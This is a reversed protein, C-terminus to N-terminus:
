VAIAGKDLSDNSSSSSSGLGEQARYERYKQPLMDYSSLDYDYIYWTIQSADSEEAYYYSTFTLVQTEGGYSLSVTGTAESIVFGAYGEPTATSALSLDSVALSDYECGSSELDYQLYATLDSTLEETGIDMSSPVTGGYENGIFHSSSTKWVGGVVNVALIAVILTVVLAAVSVILILMQPRRPKPSVSAPHQPPSSPENVM